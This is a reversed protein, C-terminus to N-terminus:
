LYKSIIRDTVKICALQRRRIKYTLKSIIGNDFLAQNISKKVTLKQTKNLSYKKIINKKFKLFDNFYISQLISSNKDSIEDSSINNGSNRYYVGDLDIHKFGYGRYTIELWLPYDELMTYGDLCPLIELLVNRKFFVAPAGIKNTDLLEIFQQAPNLGSFYKLYSKDQPMYEQDKENYKIMNCYCVPYQDKLLNQMIPKFSNAVFWDDGAIAKIYNGKAKRIGSIFNGTIGLNNSQLILSVPNSTYRNTIWDKVLKVTNDKSCDDCIIIEYDSFVQDVISELTQIVTNEQNYTLVVFSIVLKNEEM